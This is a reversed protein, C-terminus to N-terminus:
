GADCLNRWCCRFLFLTLSCVFSIGTSRVPAVRVKQLHNGNMFVAWSRSTTTPHVSYRGSVEVAKQVCRIFCINFVCNADMDKWPGLWIGHPRVLTLHRYKGVSVQTELVHQDGVDFIKLAQDWLKAGLKSFWIKPLVSCKQCAEWTKPLEM